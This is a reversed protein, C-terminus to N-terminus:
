FPLGPLEDSSSWQPPTLKVIRKTPCSFKQVFLDHRQWSMCSIGPLAEDLHSEEGVYVEIM